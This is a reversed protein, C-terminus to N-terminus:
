RIKREMLKLFRLYPLSWSGLTFTLKANRVSPKLANFHLNTFIQIKKLEGELNKVCFKNHAAKHKKQPLYNNIFWLFNDLNSKKSPKKIQKTKRKLM